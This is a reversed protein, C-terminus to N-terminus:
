VLVWRVGENGLFHKLMTPRTLAVNEDGALATVFIQHHLQVQSPFCITAHPHLSNMYPACFYLTLPHSTLTSASSPSPDPSTSVILKTPM